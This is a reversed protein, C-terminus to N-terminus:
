IADVELQLPTVKQSTWALNTPNSYREYILPVLRKSNSITLKEPWAEVTEGPTFLRPTMYRNKGVSFLTWCIGGTEVRAQRVTVRTTKVKISPTQPLNAM